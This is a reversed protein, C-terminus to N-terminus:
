KTFINWVNDTEIYWQRIALFRDNQDAVSPIIAKKIRPAIVYIFKPAYTFIVPLDKKIENNFAALKETRVGIDATERIEELLKDTTINAYLAINLGPDLRESSHWFPYFDMDKGVVEGFLLAEYKRPKIVSQNLDGSEFVKVDVKAGLANWTKALIEATKKLEPADSTSIVFRLVLTEKKTKKELVGENNEKWGSDTLIKKAIDIRATTAEGEIVTLDNKWLNLDSPIPGALPAGFGKLVEAVLIQKDISKDLARRVEPHTFITAQNQNFFVGFVRPMLSTIIVFGKEKLGNATEPSLGAIADLNNTEFADKADKENQFFRIELRAILPEGGVDKKFSKLTIIEPMGGANYKIHSIKYPGSGVPLINYQSFPFEEATADRWLHAPLVGQTLNELFSARPKELTFILNKNDIIEIGVGEWHGGRPSKLVSDLAMKATFAIDEATVPRGDHFFANEKIKVSYVLGNESVSYYEALDPAYGSNQARKLLGSYVLSVLGKDTESIALLPNIFRPSGVVGETFVGGHAPVERLFFNNAQWIASLGSFFILLGLCYFLLREAPGFCKVVSHFIGSNSQNAM